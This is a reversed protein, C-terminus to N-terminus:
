NRSIHFSLTNLKNLMDLLIDDLEQADDKNPVISRIFDNLKVLYAQVKSPTAESMDFTMTVAEMGHRHSVMFMSYLGQWSEIYEDVLEQFEPIFGDLYRHLIESSTNWHFIQFQLSAGTLNRFLALDNEESPNM